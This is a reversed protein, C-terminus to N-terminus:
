PERSLYTPQRVSGALLRAVWSPLRPEAWRIAAYVGALVAPVIVVDAAASAWEVVEAPLGLRVLWAVVAAWWGTVTTRIVSTLQDSLKM